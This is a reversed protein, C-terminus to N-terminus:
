TTWASSRAQLAGGILVCTGRMGVSDVAQRVVPVVGTCELAHDAHGGCIDTVAAVPDDVGADVVDTADLRAALDLRSWHRDLAIIRTAACNRAAM